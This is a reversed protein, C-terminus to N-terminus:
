PENRSRQSHTILLFIPQSFSDKRYTRLILVDAMLMEKLSGAKENDMGQWDGIQRPFNDLHRQENLSIKLKAVKVKGSEGQLQTDVDIFAGRPGLAPRYLLVVLVFALILFGILFVSEWIRVM